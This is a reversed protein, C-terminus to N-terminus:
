KPQLRNDPIPDAPRSQISAHHNPPPGAEGILMELRRITQEDYYTQGCVDCRWSLLNPASVLTGQYVQVYVTQQSQLRGLQCNLCTTM